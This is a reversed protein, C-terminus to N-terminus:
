AMLERLTMWPRSMAFIVERRNDRRRCLSVTLCKGWLTENSPVVTRLKAPPVHTIRGYEFFAFVLERRYKTTRM